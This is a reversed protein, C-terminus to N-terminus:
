ILTRIECKFLCVQKPPTIVCYDHGEDVSAGLKTLEAVIAKM